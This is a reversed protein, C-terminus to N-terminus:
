RSAPAPAALVPHEASPERPAGAGAALAVTGGSPSTGPYTTMGVSSSGAHLCVATAKTSVTSVVPVGAVGDNASPSATCCTSSAISVLALSAPLSTVTVSM